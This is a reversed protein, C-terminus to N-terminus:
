IKLSTNKLQKIIKRSSLANNGVIIIKEIKIKKGENINFVLEKEWNNNSESNLIESNIQIDHYHKSKYYNKINNISNSIDIDSLVQGNILDLENLIKKHIKLNSEVADSSTIQSGEFLIGALSFSLATIVVITYLM